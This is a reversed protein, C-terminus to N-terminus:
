TYLGNLLVPQINYYSMSVICRFLKQNVVDYIINPLFRLIISMSKM